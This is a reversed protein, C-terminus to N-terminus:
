CFTECNLHIWATSHIFRSRRRIDIDLLAIHNMFAVGAAVGHEFAFISMKVTHRRSFGTLVEWSLLNREIWPWLDALLSCRTVRRNISPISNGITFAM